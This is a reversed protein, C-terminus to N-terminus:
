APQSLPQGGVESVDGRIDIEHEGSRSGHRVLVRTSPRHRRLWSLTSDLEPHGDPAAGIVVVADPTFEFTAAALVRRRLNGAGPFTPLHVRDAGRPLDIRSFGPSDCVLLFSSGPNTAGLREALGRAEHAHGGVCYFLVRLGGCDDV